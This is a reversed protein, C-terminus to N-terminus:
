CQLSAQLWESLTTKVFGNQLLDKKEFTGFAVMLHLICLVFDGFRLTGDKRMYRLVLLSLADINVQFGVDM